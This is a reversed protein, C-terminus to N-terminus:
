RTHDDPWRRLRAAPMRVMGDLRTVTRELEENPATNEMVTAGAPSFAALVSGDTTFTMLAPFQTNQTTTVVEVSWSGTLNEPQSSPSAQVIQAIVLIGILLAIMVGAASVAAKRKINV